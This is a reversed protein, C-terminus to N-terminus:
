RGATSVLKWVTSRTVVTVKKPPPTVLRQRRSSSAPKGPQVRGLRRRRNKIPHLGGLPTTVATLEWQLDEHTVTIGMERNMSTTQRNSPDTNLPHGNSMDGLRHPDRTLSRMAPNRAEVSLLISAQRIPRRSRVATRRTGRSINLPLHNLRRPHQPDPRIAEGVLETHRRARDAPDQAAVLHQIQGLTVRQGTVHNAGRLLCRDPIFGGRKALQDVDIDLLDTPDGVTAAPPGPSALRSPGVGSSFGFGAAVVGVCGDVVVGPEGVCLDLAVLLACCSGPEQDTGGLEECLEADVPDVGHHGVVVPGVRLALREGVGEVGDFGAM